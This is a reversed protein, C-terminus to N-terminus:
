WAVSIVEAGVHVLGDRGTGIDVFATLELRTVVGDVVTDPKLEKFRRTVPRVMTLSILGRKKDVKKVWVQVEDGL